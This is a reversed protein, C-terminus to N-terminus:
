DKWFWYLKLLDLWYLSGPMTRDLRRRALPALISLLPLLAFKFMAVKSALSSLRSPLDPHSNQLVKLNHVAREQKRLFTGHGELGLHEVANDIHLLEINKAKLEWGWLTDEHGYGIAKEDFPQWLLLSRPALFNNTQFGVYPQKSRVRAPKSERKRGYLWHLFADGPISREESYFRGGSIVKGSDLYPAYATIFDAPIAGDADLFILNDYRAERALRNRIAARGHNEALVTYVVRDALKRLEVNFDSDGPPSADEYVRVEWPFDVPQLQAVLQRVLPGVHYDYVPILVSLM